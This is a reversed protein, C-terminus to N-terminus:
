SVQFDILKQIFDRHEYSINQISVLNKLASLWMTEVSELNNVIYESKIIQLVFNHYNWYKIELQQLVPHLDDPAVFSDSTELFPTQHAPHGSNDILM